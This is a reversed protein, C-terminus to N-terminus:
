LNDILSTLNSNFKKSNSVFVNLNYDQINIIKEELDELDRNLPIILDMKAFTDLIELQHDDIHEGFEALRAGVIIKKRKKLASIISGTGAHSIVFNADDMYKTFTEKDLFPICDIKESQFKNNGIQAVVKEQIAGRDVANEVAQLLRIFNFNQTGLTVFIM